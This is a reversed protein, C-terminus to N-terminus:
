SCIRRIRRRPLSCRSPQRRGILCFSLFGQHRPQVTSLPSVFNTGGSLFHAFSCRAASVNSFQDNLADIGGIGNPKMGGAGVSSTRDVNKGGGIPRPSATGNIGTNPTAPTSTPGSSVTPQGATAFSAPWDAGRSPTQSLPALDLAASSASLQGSGDGRRILVPFKDDDTNM